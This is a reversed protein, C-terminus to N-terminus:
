FSFNWSDLSYKSKVLETLGELDIAQPKWEIGDPAFVGCIVNKVEERSININAIFDLHPRLARYGPEKPPYKLYRGVKNIDVDLLVTGHHLFYRRKRAQANGSFKRGNVALDSIPFFESDVGKVKFGETLGKMISQYSLDIKRYREDRSYSLVASFNFCGKGQLVTGGGSIRRLVKVEDEACKSMFCEDDAKCSRGLVVFTEASEWFRLTEGMEGQEAKFLFFEDIALDEEPSM